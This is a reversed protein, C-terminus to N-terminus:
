KMGYIEVTAYLACEKGNDSLVYDRLCMQEDNEQLVGIINLIEEKKGCLSLEVTYCGELDNDTQQDRMYFKATYKKTYPSLVDELFRDMQDTSVFTHFGNSNAEYKTQEKKVEQELSPLKEVQEAMQEYEAKSYSYATKANIMRKWEPLFLFRIGFINVVLFALILLLVKERKTVQM